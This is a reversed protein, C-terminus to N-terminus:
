FQSLAEVAEEESEFLTAFRTVGVVEFVRRFNDSIGTIGAKMGKRAGEMLLQTLLAIGAGNITATEQLKLIVRQKESAILANYADQLISESRSTINGQIELVTVRGRDEMTIRNEAGLHRSIREQARRLAAELADKQVPKNIFDAANLNLAQIALDMDGHGTVVVVETAPDLAKIRTLVEIGDMGPMKIDTIVVEPRERQFIAVGEEGNEATLIEYGYAELFLQMMDLTPREDDILLIRM